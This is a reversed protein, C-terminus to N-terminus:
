QQESKERIYKSSFGGVKTCTLFDELIWDEVDDPKVVVDDGYKLQKVTNPKNALKGHFSGNKFDFIQVWMHESHGNEIFNAKVAYRFLDEQAGNEEIFGILYPLEEQAKEKMESLFGDGSPVSAVVSPAPKKKLFNFM